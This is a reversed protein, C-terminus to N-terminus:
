IILPRFPAEVCKPPNSSEMDDFLVGEDEDMEISPDSGGPVLDSHENINNIWTDVDANPNVSSSRGQILLRSIPHAPRQIEKHSQHENQITSRAEILNAKDTLKSPNIPSKTDRSDRTHYNSPRLSSHDEELTTPRKFCTLLPRNGKAHYEQHPLPDQQKSHHATTLKSVINDQIYRRDWECWEAM